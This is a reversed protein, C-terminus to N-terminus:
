QIKTDIIMEIAQGIDGTTVLANHCVWYEAQTADVIIQVHKYDFVSGFKYKSDEYQKNETM